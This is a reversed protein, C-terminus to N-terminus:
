LPTSKGTMEATPRRAWNAELQGTIQPSRCLLPKKLRPTQTRNGVLESRQCAALASFVPPRGKKLRLHLRRIMTGLGRCSLQCLMQSKILPNLTRTGAPEHLPTLCRGPGKQNPSTKNPALQPNDSALNGVNAEGTLRDAASLFVLPSGGETALFQQVNLTSTLHTADCPRLPYRADFGRM